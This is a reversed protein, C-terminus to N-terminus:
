ATQQLNSAQQETRASLDANGQAIERSAVTVSEVGTRVDGILKRLAVQMSQLHDLLQGVEDRSHAAIDRTLDGSAIAQVAQGAQALSASVTRYTWLMVGCLAALVAAALGLALANLRLAGSRASEFTTRASAESLPILAALPKTFAKHLAPWDNELAETLQANNKASYAGEIKGLVKETTGWGSRLEDALAKEEPAASSALGPQVDAWAKALEARAERLHNLSGPVPLTDLLVGAVRFRVERLLNDIRQLQVLTRVDREYVDQLAAVNARGSYVNFGSLLVLGTLAIATAAILRARITMNQLM